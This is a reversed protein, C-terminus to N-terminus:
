IMSGLLCDDMSVPKVTVNKAYLNSNEYSTSKEVISDGSKLKMGNYTYEQYYTTTTETVAYSVFKCDSGKLTIQVKDSNKTEVKKVLNNEDDLEPDPNLTEEFVLTYTNNNKFFSVKELMAEDMNEVSEVFDGTQSFPSESLVFSKIMSDFAKDVPSTETIPALPLFMRESKIVEGLTEQGEFMFTQLYMDHKKVSKMEMGGVSGQTVKMHDVQEGEMHAVYNKTDAKLTATMTRQQLQEAYKKGDKNITTISESGYSKTCIFSKALEEASNYVSADVANNIESVFVEKEISAGVKDFKPAKFLNSKTGCASLLAIMALAPIFKITKMIQEKHVNHAREQINYVCM